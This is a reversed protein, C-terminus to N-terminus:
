SLMGPQASLQLSNRKHALYWLQQAWKSKGNWESILFSLLCLDEQEFIGDGKDEVVVLLSYFTHQMSMSFQFLFLFVYM